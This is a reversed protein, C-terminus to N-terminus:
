GQGRVPLTAVVMPTEEHGLACVPGGEPLPEGEPAAISFGCEPCRILRM